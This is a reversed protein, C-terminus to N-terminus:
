VRGLNVALQQVRREYSEMRQKWQPYRKFDEETLCEKCALMHNPRNVLYKDMVNHSCESMAM